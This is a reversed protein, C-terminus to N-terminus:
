LVVTELCQGVLFNQPGPPVILFGTAALIGRLDPSGFWPLPRVRQDETLIAPHYTPRDGRSSFPEALPIARITPGPEAHGGLKRLAPKVFLEFGVFASVPNGPLGFVLVDGRTGFLLPKGPKMRITHFHIEVGLERLVAPVYDHQGVSVGGALVVVDATALAQRVQEGLLAPDDRVIGGGSPIAGARQALALLMPGNSNRIQGPQPEIGPEVLESGTAIVTLRPAPYLAAHTRGVTACLGLVAPTCVTGTPLVVDGAQMERGRPLIHQGPRVTTARIHVQEPTPAQTDEQMIVADAGDPIPAGTTIAVAEGPNVTQEWVAGAAVAGVRRLTVNGMPCDASRVAYGDMLSKTFPPSDRDAHLDEALVQGLVSGTLSTTEAHLPHTHALVIERAAAVELM